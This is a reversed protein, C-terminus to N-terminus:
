VEDIYRHGYVSVRGTPEWSCNLESNGDVNYGYEDKFQELEKVNNIKYPKMKEGEYLRKCDKNSEVTSHLKKKM